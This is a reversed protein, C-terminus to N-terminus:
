RIAIDFGRARTTGPFGDLPSVRIGPTGAPKNAFAVACDAVNAFHVTEVEHSQAGYQRCLAHRAIKLLWAGFLSRERIQEAKRYVTLMVDQALDESLALECGRSRFFAVLKPTFIRFAMPRRSGYLRLATDIWRTPMLGGREVAHAGDAM